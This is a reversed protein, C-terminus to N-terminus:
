LYEVQKVGQQNSGRTYTQDIGRNLIKKFCKGTFLFFKVFRCQGVYIIIIYPPNSKNGPLIRHVKSKIFVNGYINGHSIGNCPIHVQQWFCPHAGNSVEICCICHLKGNTSTNCTNIIIVMMMCFMCVKFALLVFQLFLFFYPFFYAILLLFKENIYNWKNLRVEGLCIIWGTSKWSNIAIHKM